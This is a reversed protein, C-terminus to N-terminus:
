SLAPVISNRTRCRYARLPKENFHFGRMWTSCVTVSTIVPQVQNARLYENRFAIFQVAWLYSGGCPWDAFPKAMWHRM